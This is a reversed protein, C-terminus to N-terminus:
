PRGGIIGKNFIESLTYDELWHTLDEPDLRKVTSVGKEREVVTVEEPLFHDIFANSQTAFIIQAHASTSRALEAVLHIAAPHLGLEPEDITMLMPLHQVPQALATILAIARLTGDSLQHVGFREDQDDIWDLRVHRENSTLTPELSKISPVIRKVLQEIRRWAKHEDPRESSKLRWLYAALNGGDWNLAQDEEVRSMTRLAANASTDHFHYNIIKRLNKVVKTQAILAKNINSKIDDKLQNLKELEIDSFTPINDLSKLFQLLFNSKITGDANTMEEFLFLSERTPFIIPKNLINKSENSDETTILLTDNTSNGLTTAYSIPEDETNFFLQVSCNPTKKPGYHLLSSAGGSDEVFKQLSGTRLAEILRFVKLINSKGSGNAGILLNLSGLELEVNALSTFGRIHLRTLQDPM